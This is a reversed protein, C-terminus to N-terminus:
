HVIAFYITILHKITTETISNTDLENCLVSDNANKIVIKLLKKKNWQQSFAEGMNNWREHQQTKELTFFFYRSVNMLVEYAKNLFKYKQSSFVFTNVFKLM